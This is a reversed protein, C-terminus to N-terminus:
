YLGFYPNNRIYIFRDIFWQKLFKVNDDFRKTNIERPEIKEIYHAQPWVEANALASDRIRAAYDDIFAMLENFHNLYFNELERKFRWRFESSQFIPVFFPRATGDGGVIHLGNGHTYGMGWDFDWVPGLKFKGGPEEKYLYLSKPYRLETNHAIDNVLVYKVFQDADFADTWREEVVAAMAENLDAKLAKWLSDVAQEDGGALERLDPDKLMCPMDLPESMFRFEEDYNTDIEWLVGKEEDIDVSGSNIGVKNTLLYSGRDEGNFVLRVPEPINSYPLGVMEAIKFAVANKMLTNDIWNSILVFSKAKNLGGISQKKDFKLRYSKKPFFWSSSGRGKISVVAVVTDSGDQPVYRFRATLYNEKDPVESVYPETDIYLTPINIGVRVSKVSDLGFPRVEGDSLAVDIRDPASASGAFAISDVESLPFTRIQTWGEAGTYYVKLEESRLPSVATLLTILLLFIRRVKLNM